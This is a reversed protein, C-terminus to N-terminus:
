HAPAAVGAGIGGRVWAVYPQPPFFSFWICPLAVLVTGITLAQFFPLLAFLLTHEPDPGLALGLARAIVVFLTMTSFAGTWLAWLLFRNTVVPEALGLVLRRRMMRYYRLSQFCAWPLVVARAVAALAVTPHSEGRAGGSALLLGLTLVLAALGGLAFRRAAASDPQFVRWVFVYLFGTTISLAIHSAGSLATAIATADQAVAEISAFRLPVGVAAACFVLGLWLEPERGSALGARLMRVGSIAM